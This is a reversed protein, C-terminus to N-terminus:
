NEANSRAEWICSNGPMEMGQRSYYRKVFREYFLPTPSSFTDKIGSFLFAALLSQEPLLSRLLADRAWM